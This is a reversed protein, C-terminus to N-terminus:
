WISPFAKTLNRWNEHVEDFREISCSMYDEWKTTRPFSAVNGIASCATLAALTKDESNPWTEAILAYQHRRIGTVGYIEGDWGFIHGNAVAKICEGIIEKDEDTTRGILERSIADMLLVRAKLGLDIERLLRTSFESTKIQWSANLIIGKWDEREFAKDLTRKASFGNKEPPDFGEPLLSYIAKAHQQLQLYLAQIEMEMENENM